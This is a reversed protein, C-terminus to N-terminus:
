RREDDASPAPIVTMVHQQQIGPQRLQTSSPRLTPAVIQRAARGAPWDACTERALRVVDEWSTNGAVALVINGASYHAAHYSRMQEVKLTTISEITGLIPQGLPHDAFHRQLAQEYVTFNPMDAYMGIEELIVNKEVDFDE